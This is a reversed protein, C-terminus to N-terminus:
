LNKEKLVDDLKQEKFTKQIKSLENMKEKQRIVVEKLTEYNNEEFQQINHVEDPEIDEIMFSKHSIVNDRECHDVFIQVMSILKSISERKISTIKEIDESSQYSCFLVAAALESYRFSLFNPDLILLDVVKALQMFDDRFLKPICLSQGIYIHGDTNSQNSANFSEVTENLADNVGDISRLFSNSFSTHAIIGDDTDEHCLQSSVTNIKKVEASANENTKALLQLYFALWHIVTVPNFNWNLETLLIQEYMVVQHADCAGDTFDALVHLKPPYIEEFKCAVSLASTAVLQLEVLPIQKEAVCLYRDFYDVALHFTERHLKLSASVEMLWDVIMCRAQSRAQATIHTQKKLGRWDRENLEDKSCLLSWVQEPAGLDPTEMLSPAERKCRKAQKHLELSYRRFPSCNEEDNTPKKRKPM